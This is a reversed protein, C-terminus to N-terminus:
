HKGACSAGPDAPGSKVAAVPKDAKAIAVGDAATFLVMKRALRTVRKSVHTQHIARKRETPM